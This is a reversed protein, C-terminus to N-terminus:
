GSAHRQGEYTSCARPRRRSAAVERLPEIVSTVDRAVWEPHEQWAPGGARRHPDTERLLLLLILASVGLLAADAWFAAAIGDLAALAGLLLPGIAYCADRWLRYVGLAGGRWSPHATDGVATILNPYALAMGLGMVTAGAFWLATTSSAVVLVIGTGILAPGGTIPWRRGVQDALWGTPVQSLGWM